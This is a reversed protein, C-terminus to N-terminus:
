RMQMNVLLCAMMKLCMCPETIFHAVRDDVESETLGAAQIAEQVANPHLNEKVQREHDKLDMLDASNSGSQQETLENEAARDYDKTTLDENYQELALTDEDKVRSEERAQKDEMYAQYSNSGPLLNIQEKRDDSRTHRTTGAREAKAYRALLNLRELERDSLVGEFDQVYEDKAKAHSYGCHPCVDEKEKLLKYYSKGCQDCVCLIIDPRVRRPRRRRIENDLDAYAGQRTRDPTSQVTEVAEDINDQVDQEPVSFFRKERM